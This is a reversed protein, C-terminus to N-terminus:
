GNKNVILVYGVVLAAARQTKRSGGNYVRIPRVSSGITWNSSFEVGGGM